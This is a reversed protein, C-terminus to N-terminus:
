QQSALCVMIQFEIWYHQVAQSEPSIQIALLISNDVAANITIAKRSITGRVINLHLSKPAMAEGSASAMSTMHRKEMSESSRDVVPWGLLSVQSGRLYLGSLAKLTTLM